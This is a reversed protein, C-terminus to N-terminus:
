IKNGNDEEEDNIVPIIIIGTTLSSSSSIKIKNNIKQRQEGIGWAGELMPCKM